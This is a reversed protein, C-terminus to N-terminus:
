SLYANGSFAGTFTLTLSNSSTYTIEGEVITGASDQVTVNPKWGLNHNVTWVASSVSQIHHYAVVPNNVGGVIIDNVPVPTPTTPTVTIVIPDPYSYSTM